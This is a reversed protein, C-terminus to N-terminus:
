QRSQCRCTKGLSSADRDLLAEMGEFWAMRSRRENQFYSQLGVILVCIRCAPTCPLSQSVPAVHLATGGPLCAAEVM